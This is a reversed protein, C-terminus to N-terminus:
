DGGKLRRVTALVRTLVPNANDLRWTLFLESEIPSELDLPRFHIGSIGLTSASHPVLALGMGSRVFALISLSSNVVQVIRPQVRHNYLANHVLDHFPRWGWQSYTIFPQTNLAKLPVRDMGALAHGEPLALVFPERLLLEQELANQETRARVMGIDLLRTNLAEIQEASSMERVSVAIGGNDAGVERLVRPLLDYVSSAVFGISVAGVAGQATTRATVEAQHARDMVAVADPYFARGAPTMSVHHKDREFLLVGLSSELLKIQRSLPPQTMNLRAAAKRFNLEQAVALFCRLQNLEFM